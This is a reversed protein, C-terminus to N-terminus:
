KIKANPCRSTIYNYVFDYHAPPVYVTGKQMWLNVRILNKRRVAKIKRVKTYDIALYGYTKPTEYDRGTDREAESPDIGRKGSKVSNTVYSIKDTEMAYDVISRTGKVGLTVFFWPLIFLLWVGVSIVGVFALSNLFDGYFDDAAWRVFNIILFLGAIIVVTWTLNVPVTPNCFSSVRYEWRYAGNEDCCFERLQSPDSPRRLPFQAAASSAPKPTDAQTTNQLPQTQDFVPAGCNPCFSGKEIKTGCNTCYAKM